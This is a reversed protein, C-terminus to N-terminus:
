GMDEQIKWVVDDKQIEEELTRFLIFASAAPLARIQKILHEPKEVEHLKCGPLPNIIM